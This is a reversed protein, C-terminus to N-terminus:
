QQAEEVPPPYFKKFRKIKMEYLVFDIYRGDKRSEMDKRGVLRFNHKEVLRITGRQTHLLDVSLKKVKYHSFGYRLVDTLLGQKLVAMLAKPRILMHLRRHLGHNVEPADDRYWVVGQPYIGDDMMVVRGQQIEYAFEDPTVPELLDHSYIPWYDQAISLITPLDVINAQRLTYTM